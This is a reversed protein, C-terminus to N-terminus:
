QSRKRIPAPAYGWLWAERDRQRRAEQAGGFAWAEHELRESPGMAELPKEEIPKPKYINLNM